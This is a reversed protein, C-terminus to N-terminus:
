DGKLGGERLEVRGTLLACSWHIKDSFRRAPAGAFCGRRGLCGRRGSCSCQRGTPSSRRPIEQDSTLLELGAQDVHHFGTEVTIGAVQSASSPSDSSGMLPPQLSGLGCWQVRTQTIPALSRRLFFFNPTFHHSRPESCGGGGLNFHNEQRLRGLLQSQLRKCGCRALKKIQKSKLIAAERTCIGSLFFITIQMKDSTLLELGAQGVHHFGTEVSFVSILRAHHHHTGIILTVGSDSAPSDSSGLLHLNCNGSVVNNCELSTLLDLGDQGVHHFGTEILFVFILLAHHRVGTTGAGRPALAPPNTSGLLCLNYHASIKGSCELSPLLTLSRRGGCEVLNQIKLLSQNEGQQGPQDRSRVELSTDAKAEWLPAHAVVGPQNNQLKLLSPTKGHQGPPDRVGGSRLHDVWRLRRFYRQCVQFILSETLTQLARKPSLTPPQEGGRGMPAEVPEPLHAVGAM